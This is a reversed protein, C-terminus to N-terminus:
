PAGNGSLIQAAGRLASRFADDFNAKDIHWSFTRGGERMRWDATWGGKEWVLTGWLPVDAEPTLGSQTPLVVPLGIQWSAAALSERQDRGHPGDSSLMYETDGLRVAVFMLVRPREASWPKRGLSALAADIKAPDFDVILDFPRDRTGQEDHIPIGELRDHARYSRVYDGAHERLAAVKPDALLRPDGSVKVLVDLFCDKFGPIRTEQRDGTVITRAQYLDEVTAGSATGGALLLVFVAIRYLVIHFMRDEIRDPPRPEGREAPKRGGSLVADGPIGPENNEDAIGPGGHEATKRAFAVGAAIREIVPAAFHDASKGAVEVGAGKIREVLRRMREESPRPAAAGAMDRRQPEVDMRLVSEPMGVARRQQKRDREVQRGRTGARM